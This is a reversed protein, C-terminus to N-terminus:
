KRRQRIGMSSGEALPKAIVPYRLEVRAAENPARVVTHRPTPVGASAVLRKCIEKDLSVALTLPDSHTFPVKLMELVAPVHAERSRTGFGEAINFVLDPPRALVQEVLGRGGGLLRPTHGLRALADAIARVTGEGDYEELRDDPGAVTGEYASRLDYAIGVEM